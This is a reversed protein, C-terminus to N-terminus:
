GGRWFSYRQITPEQNERHTRRRWLKPFEFLYFQSVHM